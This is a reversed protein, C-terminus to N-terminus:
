QTIAKQAACLLLSDKQVAFQILQQLGAEPQIEGAQGEERQQGGGEGPGQRAELQPHYGGQPEVAALGGLAAAPLDVLIQVAVGAIHVGGSLVGHDVGGQGHHEKARLAVVDDPGVVAEQAQGVLPLVQVVGLQGGQDGAKVGVPQHLASVLAGALHLVGAPAKLDKAM